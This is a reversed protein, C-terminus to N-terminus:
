DARLASVPSQKAARVAPALCAALSIAAFALASLSLTKMDLAATQYLLRRILESVAWVGALGSLLGLTVLRFGQGM